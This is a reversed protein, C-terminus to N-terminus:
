GRVLSAKTQHPAHLLAERRFEAMLAAQAIDLVLVHSMLQLGESRHLSDRGAQHRLHRDNRQLIASIVRRAKVAHQAIGGVGVDGAQEILLYIATRLM